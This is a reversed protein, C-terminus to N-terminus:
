PTELKNIKQFSLQGLRAEGWGYLKKEQTIALSHYAGCAIYTVPNNYFYKLYKPTSSTEFNKAIGLQGEFGRGWAYVDGINTLALSHVEGCSVQIVFRDKLSPIIKPTQLFTIGGQGLAGYEGYGYSYLIGKGNLLFM